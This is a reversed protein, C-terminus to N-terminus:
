SSQVSPLYDLQNHCGNTFKNLSGKPHGPRPACGKRSPVNVLCTFQAVRSEHCHSDQGRRMQLIRLSLLRRAM